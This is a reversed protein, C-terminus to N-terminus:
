LAREFADDLADAIARAWTDPLEAYPLVPRPPVVTKGVTFGTQQFGAYPADFTVVIGAGASPRVTVTDREHSTEILISDSGKKEITSLLLPAWPKGYPDVGAAFQDDIAKAIGDSAGRAAQSPVRALKGLNDALRGLESIDGTWASM